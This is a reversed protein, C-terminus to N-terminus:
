VVSLAARTPRHRTPTRRPTIQRCRSPEAVPDKLVRAATPSIYHVNAKFASDVEAPWRARAASIVEAADTSAAIREAITEENALLALLVLGACIIQRHDICHRLMEVVDVDVGLKALQREQSRSGATLCAMLGCEGVLAAEIVHRQKVQARFVKAVMATGGAQLIRTRIYTSVMAVGWLSGLAAIKLRQGMGDGVTQLQVLLIEVLRRRIDGNRMDEDGWWQSEAHPAGVFLLGEPMLILRLARLAELRLYAEEGREFEPGWQVLLDAIASLVVPARIARAVNSQSRLACLALDCAHPDLPDPTVTDGVPDGTGVALLRVIVTLAEMETLPATGDSSGPHLCALLCEQLWQSDITKLLDAALGPPSGSAGVLQQLQYSFYAETGDRGV